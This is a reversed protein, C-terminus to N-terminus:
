GNGGKQILWTLLDRMDIALIAEQLRFQGNPLICLGFYACRRDLEAAIADCQQHYKSTESRDIPRLEDVGENFNIRDAWNAM